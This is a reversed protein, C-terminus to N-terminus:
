YAEELSGIKSIVNIMGNFHKLDVRIGFNHVMTLFIVKAEKELGSQNCSFLIGLWTKENPKFGEM